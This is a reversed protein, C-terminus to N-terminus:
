TPSSPQALLVEKCRIAARLKRVAALYNSDSGCISAECFQEFAEQTGLASIIEKYDDFDGSNNLQESVAEAVDDGGDKDSCYHRQSYMKTKQAKLLEIQAAIRQKQVSANRKLLQEFGRMCARVLVLLQDTDEKEFVETLISTKTHGSTKANVAVPPTGSAAPFTTQISAIRRQLVKSWKRLVSRMNSLTDTIPSFNTPDVLQHTSASQGFM